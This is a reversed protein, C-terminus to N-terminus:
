VPSMCVCPPLLSRQLMDIDSSLVTSRPATSTTFPPSLEISRQMSLQRTSFQQLHTIVLPLLKIAYTSRLCVYVYARACVYVCVCVCKCYFEYSSSYEGAYYWLVWLHPLYVWPIYLFLQEQVKVLFKVTNVVNGVLTVIKPLRSLWATLDFV